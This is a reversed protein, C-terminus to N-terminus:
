YLKKTEYNSRKGISRPYCPHCLNDRIRFFNTNIRKIRTIQTGNRMRLSYCKKVRARDSGDVEEELLGRKVASKLGTIVSQKSLGTGRDMRSGDGRKRGNRFEDITIRKKLGYEQYGWTHKFVYEVVKLEAISSMEATIDTWADPMKFWNQEPLDFGPFTANLHDTQAPM